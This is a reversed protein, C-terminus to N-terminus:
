LGRLRQRAPAGEVRGSCRWGPQLHRALWWRAASIRGRSGSAEQCL